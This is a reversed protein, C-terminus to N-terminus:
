LGGPNRLTDAPNGPRLGFALRHRPRGPAGVIGFGLDAGRNLMDKCLLLVAHIQEDPRRPDQSGLGFDAHGVKEVVDLTRNEPLLPRGCSALRGDDPARALDGPFLGNAGGVAAADVDVVM